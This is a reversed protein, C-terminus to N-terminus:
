QKTLRTFRTLHVNAQSSPTCNQTKWGTTLSKLRGSSRATQRCLRKGDSGNMTKFLDDIYLVKAEKWPTILKEYRDADNVSAVLKASEDVWLMYAVSKGKRLFERCIATCIHSKGVGSQGGVFFGSKPDKAYAMATDKIAKQWPETAEFKDFTKERIVDGLGSQKMKAISRRVADCKCVVLKYGASGPHDDLVAIDGRNKCIHCDYGDKENLTGPEANYDDVQKQRWEEPTLVKADSMLGMGNLRNLIETVGEM